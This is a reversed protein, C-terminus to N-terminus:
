NINLLNRQKFYNRINDISFEYIEEALNMAKNIEFPEPYQQLLHDALSYYFQGVAELISKSTWIVLKNSLLYEIIDPRRKKIAGILAIESCRDSRNECLYKVIALNGNSAATDIATSWSSEEPYQDNLYKIMDLCDNNVSARCVDAIIVNTPIDETRNEELFKFIDLRGNLAANYFANKSYGETRNYYLFKVLELSFCSANDLARTTCGESRNRHMWVVMENYKEISIKPVNARVFDMAKNTCGETRNEHFWKFVDFHGNEAAINMAFQNCGETRHQDLWKIIHLYGHSASLNMANHTCTIRCHKKHAWIISNLFGSDALIDINVTINTPDIHENEVLWDLLKVHGNELALHVVQHYSDKPRNVILWQLMSLNGNKAALEIPSVTMEDPSIVGVKNSLWVVMDLTGRDAAVELGEVYIKPTINDIDDHEILFRELAVLNELKRSYAARYFMLSHRIYNSLKLRLDKVFMELVKFRGWEISISISFGILRTIHSSCNPTLYKVFYEKVCDVYNYKILLQPNNALRIWECTKLGLALHIESVKNFINYRLVQNNFIKLFLTYEM